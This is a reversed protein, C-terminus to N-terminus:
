AVGGNIFATIVGTTKTFPTSASTVVATIGTSYRSPLGDYDISATGNAPLAAVAIPTIAGDAPAATLNLIVLFGPTGTINVASARYLNGAGNKLVLSSAAAATVVETIAATSASSAALAVAAIGIGSAAAGQISRACDWNTGDFLMQGASLIGDAAAANDGYPTVVKQLTSSIPDWVYMVSATPLGNMAPSVTAASFSVAGIDEGGVATIDVEEGGGSTVPTVPLPNTTSVLTENGDADNFVVSSPNNSM